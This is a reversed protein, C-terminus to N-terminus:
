LASHNTLENDQHLTNFNKNQLARFVLQLLPHKVMQPCVSFWPFLRQSKILLWLSVLDELQRHEENWLPM